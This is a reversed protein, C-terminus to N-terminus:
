FEVVSGRGSARAMACVYQAAALDQVALGLSEFITLEDDSTRGSAGDLVEGLEAAIHDPGLGAEAAAFLYDGSEALASERRDVVFRAGAVTATDLERAAPLCAGVANVHAGPALWAHELVPTSSTTATVVITAGALAQAPDSVFEVPVSVEESLRAAVERGRAADRGTLRVHTLPRIGAIARVHWQAQFGTGIVALITADSRALVDTAVASVAATRVSTIATANVIAQPEGTAPDLLMVVGQHSDKGIASNGHYIGLMKIGLAPVAGGIYGPMLGLFGDLGPPAVKSRLPQHGDGRSVSILTERMVPMCAKLTLLETVADHGVVLLKV